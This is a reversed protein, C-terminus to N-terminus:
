EAEGQHGECYLSDLMAPNKCRKGKKTTGICQGQETYATQVEEIHQVDLEPDALMEPTVRDDSLVRERGLYFDKGSCNHLRKQRTRISYPM